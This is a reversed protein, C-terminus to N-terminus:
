TDPPCATPMQKYTEYCHDIFMFEGKMHYVIEKVIFLSIAAAAESIHMIFTLVLSM